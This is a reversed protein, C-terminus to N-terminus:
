WMNRSKDLAFKCKPLITEGLRYFLFGCCLIPWMGGQLGFSLYLSFATILAFCSLVCVREVVEAVKFPLFSRLLSRLIRGGDLPYIPLLNYVLLTLNVFSLMPYRRVSLWLLLFNVSPGAASVVLEQRYPLSVARIEAGRLGFRIGYVPIHLALMAALHAAEHFAVSLLYPVFSNGQDFCAYACLFLLYSNSVEVKWDKM